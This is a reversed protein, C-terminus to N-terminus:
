EGPGPPPPPPPCVPPCPDADTGGEGTYDTDTASTEADTLQDVSTASTPNLPDVSDQTAVLMVTHLGAYDPKEHQMNDPYCGFYIRLGDATNANLLADLAKRSVWLSSVEEIGPRDPFRKRLNETSTKRITRDYAARM